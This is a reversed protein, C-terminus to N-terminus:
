GPYYWVVLKGDSIAALISFRDHWALSHVITGIKELQTTTSMIPTIYLDRNKDVIALLRTQSNGQNEM